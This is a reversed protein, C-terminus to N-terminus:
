ENAVISLSPTKVTFPRAAEALIIKDIGLSEFHELATLISLEKSAAAPLVPVGKCWHVICDSVYRGSSLVVHQFMSTYKNLAIQVLDEGNLMLDLKNGGFRTAKGGALILVGVNQEKVVEGINESKEKEESVCLGSHRITKEM